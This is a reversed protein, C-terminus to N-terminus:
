LKVMAIVINGYVFRCDEYSIETMIVAKIYRANYTDTELKKECNLHADAIQLRERKEVRM